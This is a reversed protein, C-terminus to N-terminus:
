PQFMATYVTDAQFIYGQNPGRRRLVVWGYDRNHLWVNIDAGITLPGNEM